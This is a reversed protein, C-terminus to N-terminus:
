KQLYFPSTRHYYLITCYSSSYTSPTTASYTCMVCMNLSRLFSLALGVHVCVCMCVCIVHVSICMYVYVCECEVCGVCQLRVFGLLLELPRLLHLIGHLQFPTFFLHSPHLPLPTPRPRPLISSWQLTQTLAMPGLLAQTFAMTIWSCHNSSGRADDRARVCARVSVYARAM